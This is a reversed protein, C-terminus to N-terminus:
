YAALLKPALQKKRSMVGPLEIVGDEIRANFAREAPVKDGSILLTTGHGIIDTLMLAFAVYGRRERLEEMAGLLEERRAHVATGVTELQAIVLKEAPGVQYEKADRTVIESAAVESVDSTTEFMERGFDIAGLGLAKELYEVVARDRETTTPSNM